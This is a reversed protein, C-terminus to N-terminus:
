KKKGENNALLALQLMKADSKAPLTGRIERLTKEADLFSGADFPSYGGGGSHVAQRLVSRAVEKNNALDPSLEAFRMYYQAVTNPDEEKLYADNNILDTLLMERHLNVFRKNIDGIEQDVERPRLNLDAYLKKASDNVVKNTNSVFTGFVDAPDTADKELFVPLPGDQVFRDMPNAARGDGFHGNVLDNFKSVADEAEKRLKDAEAQLESARGVHKGAEEMLDLERRITSDDVVHALKIQCSLVYEPLYGALDPLVAACSPRRSFVNVASAIKDLDGSAYDDELLGALKSFAKRALESEVGAEAELDEAQGRLTGALKAMRGANGDVDVVDNLTPEFEVAPMFDEASKCFAFDMEPEGYAGTPEPWEPKASAAKENKVDFLLGLVTEKSVLPFSAAKENPNTRFHHLTRSTNYLECLRETQAMNFNRDSAAKAVARNEDLGDNYNDVTDQLALLLNERLTADMM